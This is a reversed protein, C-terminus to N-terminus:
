SRADRDARILDTSDMAAASAPTAARLHRSLTVLEEASLRVKPRAREITDRLEAELSRGHQQAAEKYAAITADNLKRILVQGM